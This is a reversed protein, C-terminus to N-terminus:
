RTAKLSKEKGKTKFLNIIIQSLITEKHKKHKLKISSIPDKLKNNEDFKLAM